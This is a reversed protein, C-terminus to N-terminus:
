WCFDGMEEIVTRFFIASDELRDDMGRYWASRGRAHEKGRRRNEEWASGLRRRDGERISIEGWWGRDATREGEGRDGM